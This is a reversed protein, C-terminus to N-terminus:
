RLGMIYLALTMAVMATWAIPRLGLVLDSPEIDEANQATFIFKLRFLEDAFLISVGTIVSLFLGLFWFGGHGKHTLKPGQMLKLVTSVSPEMPDIIEGNSGLVAGNSGVASITFSADTGDENTMIWYSGTDYIGGRFVIEDGERVEVGTMLHAMNDEEPIATPDITATYPGYQKDGFRFTVTQNPTVSIRWLEGKVEASYVTNGNEQSPTLIEDQYLIGERSTVVPYVVAFVIAMVILVALLLKGYFPVGETWDKIWRKNGGM